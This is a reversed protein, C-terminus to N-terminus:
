KKAVGAAGAIDQLSTRAVGRQQFLREAADLLATRTAQADAKTRRVM